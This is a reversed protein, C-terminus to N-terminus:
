TQGEDEKTSENKKSPEGAFPGVGFDPTTEVSQSPPLKGASDEPDVVIIPDDPKTEPHAEKRLEKSLDSKSRYRSFRLSDSDGERREIPSFGGAISGAVIGAMATAAYASNSRSRRGRHRRKSEPTPPAPSTGSRQDDAIENNPTRPLSSSTRSRSPSRSHMFAEKPHQLSFKLSNLRGGKYKKIWALEDHIEYLAEHYNGRNEEDEVQVKNRKASWDKVVQPVFKAALEDPILRVVIGIPISLVGLILAIGWNRGSQPVAKFAGWGGVFIIITQGAIMVFFIFIFFL